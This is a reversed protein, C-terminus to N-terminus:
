AEEAESQEELKKRDARGGAAAFVEIMKGSM